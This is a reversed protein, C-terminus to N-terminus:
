LPLNDPPELTVGRMRGLASGRTFHPLHFVTALEETNLVFAKGFYPPAFFARRRYLQFLYEKAFAPIAASLERMIFGMRSRPDYAEFSNLDQDGYPAFFTSLSSARVEDFHDKDALYLVRVGCDFSPKQLAAEIAAVVAKAGPNLTSTDGHSGVIKRIEVQADDHLTDTATAFISPRERQHPRMVWSVFFHENDGIDSLSELVEKFVDRHEKENEHAVYTRLPYPDAKALTFEAVELHMSFPDFHVERAYDRVQDIDIDRYEARIRAEVSARHATPLYVFFRVAGAHAYVEFSWPVRLQGFFFAAARTIDTRHYLAYFVLEMAHASRPTEPGPKLEIVSYPISAMFQSQVFTLWLPVALAALAVPLWLPALAAIVEYITGAASPALYITLPVAIVATVLSVRVLIRRLM